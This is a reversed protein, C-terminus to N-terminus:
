YDREAANPVLIDPDDRDDRARIVDLERLPDAPIPLRIVLQICNVSSLPCNNIRYEAQLRPGLGALSAAAQGARGGITGELDTRGGGGLVTLNRLDIRGSAEGGVGLDLTLDTTPAKIQDFSITGGTVPLRLAVTANTSPALPLVELLGITMERSRTEFTAGLDGPQYEPLRSLAVRGPAAQQFPVGGTLLTLNEIDLPGASRVLISPASLTGGIGLPGDAEVILNTGASLNRLAAPLIAAGDMVLAGGVSGTVLDALVTGRFTADGIVSLLLATTTLGGTPGQSLNGGVILRVPSGRLIGDLVMDTGSTLTREGTANMTGTSAQTLALGATVQAERAFVGGDLRANRGASLVLPGSFTMLGGANQTIDATGSLQGTTATVTGNLAVNASANLTLPGGLSLSGGAGQSLAGTTLAASAASVQGDLTTAGSTLGLAGTLALRGTAGQALSGFVLTASGASVDGDLVAAGGASLALPGSIALSGGDAQTLAGALNLTASAASTAGDLVVPGAADLSLAGGVALMAGASQIFGDAALTASGATVTGGLVVNGAADLVLPGTVALSSGAAQTFGASALTASGASVAGNLLVDGSVDLGLASGTTLTGGAAQSFGAATVSASGAVVTGDLAVDGSANLTFANVIGISGGTAQTLGATALTASGASLTGNLVVDGTAALGLAGGVTLSGGAAQNLGATALTASSASVNGNLTVDGSATLGLAGGIALSGGAAQSLGATALTASGASVTGDLAVDGAASLVLAGPVVLSGAAAQTLTSGAELTAAGGTLAVAGLTMAGGAELSLAGSGAALAGVVALDGTTAVSLGSGATFAGLLPIVNGAQALSVGTGASGTLVGTAGGDLTGGTQNIAGSATLTATGTWAITGATQVLDGGGATLVLNTGTVPGSVTLGTATVLTVDTGALNAIAGIQNAAQDLKVIGSAAADLTGARVAGGTQTVNTASLQLVPADLTFAGAGAALTLAGGIDLKLAATASVPGTVTLAGANKLSLTAGAAFGSLTGITNAGTMTAAGGAAGTLAAAKLTGTADVAGASTITLTTGAEVAGGVTIDRGAVPTGPVPAALGTALAVAGDASVSGGISLNGAQATLVVDRDATVTGAVSGGGTSTARLDRAATLTGGLAFGAGGVVIDSVTSTMAGGTQTVGAGGNVTVTGGTATGGTQRVEGLTAALTLADPAAVTGALTLRGNTAILDVDGAPATARVTGNVVLAADGAATSTIAVAGPAEVTGAVTLPTGNVVTVTTGASLDALTGIANAANSFSVAGTAATGGLGGAVIQGPASVGNAATLTVGQGPASLTGLITLSPADLSVAGASAVTNLVSLPDLSKTAIGGATTTLASLAAIRNAVGTLSLSAATGTVALVNVTGTGSVAPGNLVLNGATATVSGDLTATGSGTIAVNGATSTLAGTSALTLASAGAGAGVTGNATVAGAIQLGAGGTVTATTGATVTAGNAISTPGGAGSIAVAGGRAIAAGTIGLGGANTDLTLTGGLGSAAGNLTGGAVSGSVLLANPDAARGLIVLGAGAEVAGAVTLPASSTLTLTSGVRLADLTGIRNDLSGLSLSNAHLFAGPAADGLRNVRIGSGSGNDLVNGAVRMRLRGVLETLNVIGNVRLDGAVAASGDRAGLLLTAASLRNLDSQALSLGGTGALTMQRGPTLPLIEILGGPASVPGALSMLDAALTVTGGTASAVSGGPLVRLTGGTGATLRVATGSSVTGDVDLSGNARIALVTGAKLEGLRTVEQSVFPSDLIIGIGAQGALRAARLIAFSSASITGGSLLRLTPAQTIDTFGAITVDGGDARGIELVGTGNTGTTDVRSLVTNDLVLDGGAGNLSVSRGAIRPAIAVTGDAAKLRIGAVGDFTIADAAIAIRGEPASLAGTLSPGGIRATNATLSFQGGTPVALPANVLITGAGPTGSEAKLAVSGGAGAVRRANLSATPAITLGAASAAGGRAFGDASTLSVAGAVDPAGGAGSQGATVEGSVSLAGASTISVTAPAGPTAAGVPAQGGRVPGAIGLAIANNITVDGAAIVSGLSDLRNAGSLSIAAGEGLATATLSAADLVGGTQAIGTAGSLTLLRDARITGASQTASGVGSTLAIDGFATGFTRARLDGAISVGNAGDLAIAGGTTATGAAISGSVSVSDAAIVVDGSVTQAADLQGTVAVAGSANLTFAGAVDLDGIAAVQAPTIGGLDLSGVNGQLTGTSVLGTGSVAGPTDLTLSTTAGATGTIVIGGAATKLEVANGSVEGPAALITLTSGALLAVTGNPAEVKGAVDLTGSTSVALNGATAGIAGLTPIVNAPNSLNFSGAAGALTFGTLDVPVSQTVAGTARLDLTAFGTAAAPSADLRLSSATTSPTTGAPGTVAGFRLTGGGTAIGGFDTVLQQGASNRGIEVVGGTGTQLTNGNRTFTDARIGIRTSATVSGGLEVGGAGTGTLVVAANTSQLNAGADTVVRAGTLALEGAMAISVPVTLTGTAEVHIGDPATPVANLTLDGSLKLSVRGLASNIAGLAAVGHAAGDLQVGSGATATLTQVGSLRGGTRGISGAARIDLNVNSLALDGQLVVSDALSTLGTGPVTAGGLRLQNTGGTTTVGSLTTATLNLGAGAGSGLTMGLGPNSSIEVTPAKISNGATPLAMANAVLSVVTNALVRGDDGFTIAANAGSARIFVAGATSQVKALVQAVGDATAGAISPDSALLVISGKLKLDQSVALNRGAVLTLTSSTDNYSFAEAFNLDRTAELRVDNADLLTKLTGTSLAADTDADPNGGAGIQPSGGNPTAEGTADAVISLDRPDITLTGRRGNPASTDVAGTLSLGREASVEVRGGDGGAPGGRATVTGAHETRERALIAVRGGDGRATADAEIRAGRAVTTRRASDPGVGGTQARARAATTGIAVTGGGAPGSAVVRAMDGLAAEGTANVAVTGGREGPRTGAASVTGHVRVSGGIGAIEVTGTRDGISGARITGGASVLTQVLGDAARATLLVTGGEATVTGTNTVLATPRGARDTPAARVQSTVDFSVLGDGHLDITHTEAGALVVTGMRARITGSNAVSPAVLAALGTDRVTIDGRNVIRANPQGARDFQLRGAMFAANTTDATSAVFSQAEVQAGRHFIVGAGNIVVVGGNAEIRGAVQSPTPTTVRNLTMSGTNPQQFVVRQDRGIDFSRWDIAARDTTQTITTTNGGAGISAQGAVVTGGQPRANPAPQALAPLAFALAVAAQLATSGLLAGRGLRLSRPTLRLTRPTIEFRASRPM